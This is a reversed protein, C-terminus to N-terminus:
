FKYLISSFNFDKNNSHVMKIDYFAKMGFSFFTKEIFNFYIQESIKIIDGDNM